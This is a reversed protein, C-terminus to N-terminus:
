LRLVYSYATSSIAVAAVPARTQRRTRPTIMIDSSCVADLDGTESWGNASGPNEPDLNSGCTARPLKYIPVYKYNQNACNGQVRMPAEGTEVGVKSLSGGAM